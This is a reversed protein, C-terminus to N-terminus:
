PGTSNLDSAIVDTETGSTGPEQVRDREAAKTKEKVVAVTKPANSSQANVSLSPETVSAIESTTSSEPKVEVRVEIPKYGALSVSLIYNGPKIKKIDFKGATDTITEKSTNKIGVTVYAAPEGDATLVIGSVAGPSDSSNVNRQALAFLPFILLSLNLLVKMKVIQLNLAKAM